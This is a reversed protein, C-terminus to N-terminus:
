RVIRFNLGISAFSFNYGFEANVGLMDNFFYSGGFFATPLFGISSASKGTYDGNDTYLSVYTGMGFGAYTDLGPVEWGYHYAGRGVFGLNTWAEKYNVDKHNYDNWFFSTGIQGGLSITGPGAKWISHDYHVLIAPGFGSGGYFPIGPGFGFGLIGNGKGAPDKPGNASFASFTMLGCVFLLAVFRTIKNM